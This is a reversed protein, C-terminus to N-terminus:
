TWGGGAAYPDLSLQQGAVEQCYWARAGGGSSCTANARCACDVGGGTCVLSACRERRRMRPVCTRATWGSANAFKCLMWSPEYVVTVNERWLAWQEDQEM